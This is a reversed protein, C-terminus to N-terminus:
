NNPTPHGFKKWLLNRKYLAHQFDKAIYSSDTLNDNFWYFGSNNGLYQAKLARAFKEGDEDNLTDDEEIHPHSSSPSTTSEEGLEESLFELFNRM